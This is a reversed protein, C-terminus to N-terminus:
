NRCFRMVIHVSNEKMNVRCRRSWRGCIKMRWAARVRLCELVFSHDFLRNFVYM